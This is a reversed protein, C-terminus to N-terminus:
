LVARPHMEELVIKLYSNPRRPSWSCTKPTLSSTFSIKWLTLNQMIETYMEHAQNACVSRLSQPTVWAPGGGYGSSRSRKTNMKTEQTDHADQTRDLRLLTRQVQEKAHKNGGSRYRPPADASVRASLLVLFSVKPDLSPNKNLEPTKHCCKWRKWNTGLLIDTIWAQKRTNTHHLPRFRSTQTEFAFM